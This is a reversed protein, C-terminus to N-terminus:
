YTGKMKNTIDFATIMGWLEKSRNIKDISNVSGVNGIPLIYDTLAHLQNGVIDVILIVDLVGNNKIYYYTFFDCVYEVKFMSCISYMLSERLLRSINEDHVDLKIKNDQLIKDLRNNLIEDTILKAVSVVMNEFPENKICYLNNLNSVQTKNDLKVPMGIFKSFTTLLNGTNAKPRNLKYKSGDKSTTNRVDYAASIEPKSKDVERIILGDSIAQEIEEVSLDTDRLHIEENTESDIYRVNKRPLAIAIDVADQKIERGALEWETATRVDFADANQLKILIKNLTDFGFLLNNRSIIKRYDKTNLLGTINKDIDVLLREIHAANVANVEGM